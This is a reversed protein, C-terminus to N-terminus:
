GSLRQARRDRLDPYPTRNRNLIVFGVIFVLAALLYVWWALHGIGLDKMSAAYAFANNGAHLLMGPFISGTLLATATLVIGLFSTPIIRFLSVHFLGFIIGVVVTLGTPRFRRRLGYLLTGRFAIEECIGPLIALFLIMQWAPINKPMVDRAFQEIVQSPVPIVLNALRFIGVGMINSSPILLLIALWVAPKPARLAWAQKINLRYRAVMLLSGGLFIVLENFILQRRFTALQPVNLAVLFLIVGILAYWRLVRKQFPAPGGQLDAADFEGTTIIREQNLMRASVRGIWVATVTMVIFVLIIMPWDFKGVMIERVAVSVNALPVIVIASRLSIGPFVGALAPAWSLLYVPFFYLQAEKYSKAYASLMLLVASIFAAVPIFLFLLTLVAVPPAEIVFNAPLSIAKFTVFTLIEAVQIFTITLAVMLITLQKAAVVEGRNVAPTLITELSGREKEGAVIDMAAVAGGTLLLVVLFLTLFRGLYSGTVQSPTALNREEVSMAQDPDVPFGRERLLADRGSSFERQLLDSVRSSGQASSDRDGQYYILILPVGALRKSEPLVHKQPKQTEPANAEQPKPLADAEKGSLAELYFHIEQKRLNVAPDQVQIEELKLGSLSNKEDQKRPSDQDLSKLARAIRTRVEASETGTVAYKYVTQELTKQRRENSSKAAYLVLPLILLPFALGLVITRRDRLLMRMEHALLIRVTQWNM